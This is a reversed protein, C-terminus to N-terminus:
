KRFLEMEKLLALHEDKSFFRGSIGLPLERIEEVDIGISGFSSAAVVREGSSSINFSAFQLSVLFPKKYANKWLVSGHKKCWNEPIYSPALACRGRLTRQADKMFRNKKVNELKESSVLELLNM